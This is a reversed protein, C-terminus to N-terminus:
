EVDNTGDGVTQGSRKRGIRIRNESIGQTRNPISHGATRTNKARTEGKKKEPPSVKVGQQFVGQSYYILIHSQLSKGGRQYLERGRGSGKAIPELGVKRKQSCFWHVAHNKKEGGMGSPKKRKYYFVAEESGEAKGNNQKIIRPGGIKNKEGV